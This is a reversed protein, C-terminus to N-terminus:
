RGVSFYKFGNEKEIIEKYYINQLDFIYNDRMIKKIREFDLRRFQNWETIIVLADADKIAQLDFAKIKHGEKIYNKLLLWRLYKGLIM